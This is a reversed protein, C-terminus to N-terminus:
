LSESFVSNIANLWEIWMFSDLPEGGEPLWEKVDLLRGNRQLTMSHLLIKFPEESKDGQEYWAQIFRYMATYAELTSLIRSRENNQDDVVSSVIELWDVWVAPDLPTLGQSEITIKAPDSTKYLNMAGLLAAIDDTRGSRHHYKRIFTVMAKYSEIVTLNDKM